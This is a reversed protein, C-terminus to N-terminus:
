AAVERAHNAQWGAHCPCSCPVLEDLVDDWADGSCAAHKRQACDPSVPQPRGGPRTELRTM